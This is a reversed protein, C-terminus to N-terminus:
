KSEAEALFAKYGKSLEMRFIFNNRTKKSKIHSIIFAKAFAYPIEIDVKATARTREAVNRIQKVHITLSTGNYKLKMDEAKSPMVWAKQSHVQGEILTATKNKLMRMVNDSKLSGTVSWGGMLKTAALVASPKLLPLKESVKEVKTYEKGTIHSKVKMTVRPKASGTTYQDRLKVLATGILHLAAHKERPVGPGKDIHDFVEKFINHATDPKSTKIKEVLSNFGTVGHKELITSIEGGLNTTMAHDFYNQATVETKDLVQRERHVIVWKHGTKKWQRKDQHTRIEGEMAAKHKLFLIM